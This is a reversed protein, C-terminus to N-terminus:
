VGQPGAPGWLDAPEVHLTRALKRVTSPHPLPAPKDAELRQITTRDVGSDQALDVQTLGARVRFYRL